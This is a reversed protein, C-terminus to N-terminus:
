GEEQENSQQRSRRVTCCGRKSSAVFDLLETAELGWQLGRATELAARVTQTGCFVLRFARQLEARSEASIGARRLGVVNLGALLNYFKTMTYPPIDKNFQSGGAVL